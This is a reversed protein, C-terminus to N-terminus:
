PAPNDAPRGNSGFPDFMDVDQMAKAAELKLLASLIAIETAKQEGQAAEVAILAKTDARLTTTEAKALDNIKKAGYGATTQGNEGLANANIISARYQKNRDARIKLQQDVPLQGNNQGPDAFFLKRTTAFANDLTGTASQWNSLNLNGSPLLQQALTCPDRPLQPLRFNLNFWYDFQPLQYRGCAIDAILGLLNLTEQDVGFEGMAKQFQKQYDLMEELDRIQKNLAEVQKVAEPFVKWDFVSVGGSVQANAPTSAIFIGFTLLFFSVRIVYNLQGNM